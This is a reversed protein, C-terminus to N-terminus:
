SRARVIKWGSWPPKTHKCTGKEAYRGLCRNMVRPPMICRGVQRASQRGWSLLTDAVARPMAQTSNSMMTGVSPTRMQSAFSRCAKRSLLTCWLVGCWDTGAAEHGIVMM